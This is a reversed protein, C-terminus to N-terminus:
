SILIPRIVKDEEITKDINITDNGELFLLEVGLNGESDNTPACYYKKPIVIKHQTSNHIELAFGFASDNAKQSYSTISLKVGHNNKTKIQSWGSFTIFASLAILITKNM